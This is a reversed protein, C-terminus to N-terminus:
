AKLDKRKKILYFIMPLSVTSLLIWGKLDTNDGTGGSSPLLKDPFIITRQKDTGAVWEDDIVVKIIDQSLQYGAPAKTEKIYWTGYRLNKFTAIGNSTNTKEVKFPKTCEKDTYITFEAVKLVDSHDYYDVKNVKIESLIYKDTMELAQIDKKTNVTFEIDDALLLGEPAELERLIYSNGEILNSINHEKGTSTWQDVIEKTKTSVVQMKAGPLTKGDEDIKLVTVQKDIMTISQLEKKDNAIFKIDKALVYGKPAEVEQLTYEHGEILNSINHAKETSTWQDVIDKTKTSIVRMKAGPLTKGDVDKKEVSIQNDIMKIEQVENTNKITFKVPKSIVYGEPAEDEYLTYEKDVLLGELRLSDEKSIWEKVINEDEDVLRLHAGKLVTNNVDQKQIDIKSKQNTLEETHTYVKQVDDKQKLEFIYEKKDQVYGDLAKTEKWTYSGLPLGEVEIEGLENTMYYGDESIDMSVPSGKKYVVSGDAPDLVDEAATLRYQVGLLTEDTDKDSKVLKTTGTPKSDSFVVIQIPEGEDDVISVNSEKMVFDIKDTNFLYGDPAKIEELRYKGAPVKLPLTVKGTEDTTWTEHRILGVRQSLYKDNDVDYIKFSTKSLTVTKGTEADKKELQLYSLFKQNSIVYKITTQNASEIKVEFTQELIDVNEDGVKTQQAIYTGFALKKSIAEGDKDTTLVDYEQDAFDVKHKYAEKVSGYQDVYKKLVVVFEAGKEPKNIESGYPDVKIVKTIKFDGDIVKEKVTQAKTIVSTNQDAYSLTVNYETPDLTYGDSPTKEKLYYEGLYLNSVSALADKDTTLTAVVSDKAYKVSGDAPDLIPTRAKLEYVAGELTAEGQPISGTVGDEKKINITGTVRKNSIEQSYTKGDESITYVLKDSTIIYGDPATKELLYYEGYLLLGTKATGNNNTTIDQVYTGDSKYISFTTNAKVVTKGTDKDKKVVQIYGRKWNNNATFYSTENPKVEISRITSDLILHGPVSVEQVYYTAPLLQDVVVIGNTGTTYTGIPDNMDASKSLKFSTNPVNNGLDDQKTISLSGFKNVKVKINMALPDKVYLKAADQYGAKKYVISTGVCDDPIKNYIVMANDPANITGTITLSNGNKNLQLGGNNVLNYQEFVGNTDTITKSEGVNLTIESANFSPKDNHHNIKNQISSKYSAYSSFSTSTIRGGLAEWIMFQTALYDEMTHNSRVWGEYAIISLQEKDLPSPTFDNGPALVYGPQVCFGYEGDILITAYNANWESHGDPNSVNVSYGTFAGATINPSAAKVKTTTNIGTCLSLVTIFVLILKSAKNKIKKIM